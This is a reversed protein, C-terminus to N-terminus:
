LISVVRFTNILFIALIDPYGDFNFDGFIPNSDALLNYGAPLSLPKM